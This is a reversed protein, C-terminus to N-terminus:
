KKEEEEKEEEEEEKKEEEKECIKLLAFVLLNHIHHFEEVTKRFPILKIIEVWM